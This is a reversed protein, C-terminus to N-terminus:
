TSFLCISVHGLLNLCQDARLVVNNKKGSLIELLMVGFSFVDSKESFLGGMAYEPSMYGCTGVVRMTNGETQGARFTRATGFDSIKPNMEHDLLINSAETKFEDIGQISNKSLRKVAVEQGDELQGCLLLLSSLVPITVIITLRIKNGSNSRLSYNKLCLDQCENLTKNSETSANSTDPLKVKQLPFFGDTSCNLVTRRVCGDSTERLDWDKSSKPMFGQLCQCRPSYITTCMGNAGCTAYKDCPDEPVKWFVDWKNSRTNSSVLRQLFGGDDIFARCLVSKNLCEFTYYIEHQNMVFHFRFFGNAGMDPRGSWGEGNWPGTRFTRSSGEWIYVEPVGHPDMGYSYNGPSPDSSSKWSILHRDLKAAFDLGIKM